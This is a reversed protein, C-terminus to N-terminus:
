LRDSAIGVSAIGAEHAASMVAIVKGYAVKDGARIAVRGQDQAKQSAVLQAVMAEHVAPMPTNGLTMTGDDEISILLTADKDQPQEIPTDDPLAITQKHTPPPPAAVMFVIILSLLVDIMPTVNIECVGEMSRGDDEFM